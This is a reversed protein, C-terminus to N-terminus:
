SVKIIGVKVLYQIGSVFTSDDIQGAAWWEANNKIWGPVQSESSGSTETPPIVMIGEKILFQIGQLFASDPIQGEAWWGANNKIWSPIFIETAAVSEDFILCMPQSDLSKGTSWNSEVEICYETNTKLQEGKHKTIVFERIDPSLVQGHIDIIDEYTEKNTGPGCCDVGLGISIEIGFSDLETGDPHEDIDWTVKISYPYDEAEINTLTTGTQEFDYHTYLNATDPSPDGDGDNWLSEVSNGNGNTAPLAVNYVLLQDLLGDFSEDGNPRGGIYWQTDFCWSCIRSPYQISTSDLQDLMLLADDINSACLFRFGHECHTNSSISFSPVSTKLVGDLYFYDTGDNRVVVLHHWDGVSLNDIACYHNPLCSAQIFHRDVSYGGAYLGAALDEYSPVTIKCFYENEKDTLDTITCYEVTFDYNIVGPETTEDFVVFFVQDGVEQFIQSTLQQLQELSNNLFRIDPRPNNQGSIYIDYFNEVACSLSKKHFASQCPLKHHLTSNPDENISSDYDQRIIEATSSQQDSNFWVSLTFDETGSPLLQHQTFVRSGSGSFDWAYGFKGTAQTKIIGNQDDIGYTTTDPGYNDIQELSLIIPSPKQPDDIDSYVSQSYVYLYENNSILESFLILGTAFILILLFNM